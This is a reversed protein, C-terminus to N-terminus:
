GRPSVGVVLAYRVGALSIFVNGVRGGEGGCGCSGVLRPPGGTRPWVIAGKGPREEWWTDSDRGYIQNKLEPGVM